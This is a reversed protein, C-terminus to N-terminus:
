PELNQCCTLLYFLDFTETLLPRLAVARAAKKM